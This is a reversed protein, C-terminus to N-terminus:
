GLLNTCVFYAQKKKLAGFAFSDHKAVRKRKASLVRYFNQSTDIQPLGWICGEKLLKLYVLNELKHGFDAGDKPSLASVLGTDCAYVKKPYSMQAKSSSAFRPLRRLLYTEELYSFYELITSASSVRIADKLRSPSVRSGVHGLLYAALSRIPM